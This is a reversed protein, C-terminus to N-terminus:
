DAKAIAGAEAAVPPASEGAFTAPPSALPSHQQPLSSSTQVGAITNSGGM